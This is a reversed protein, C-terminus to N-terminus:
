LARAIANANFRMMDIYTEAGSGSAGLSGSYLEVVDVGGAVEQNLASALRDSSSTETFIAPVGEQEILGALEVFSAASTDVQTSSGPIVTGIVEFDYRRAFYGFSDHNTVLKRRQPPVVELTEVLESDLTALDQAYAQGRATWEGDDLIDDVEAVAAAIVGAGVAMRQPDLWVHPDRPSPAVEEYSVPEMHEAVYLIMAGDEEASALTDVLSEELGLGNAVVLDAERLIQAQSASAAFSHPDVGPEMIVQVRADPGVINSVVDGLISTTAVIQLPADTSADDPQSDAGLGPGSDPDPAPDSGCGTLLLAAALIATTPIRVSRM